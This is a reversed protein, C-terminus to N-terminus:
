VPEAEGLLPSWDPDYGEALNRRSTGDADVTMLRRVRSPESALEAEFVLAAADPSWSSRRVVLDGDANVLYLNSHGDRRSVLCVRTGDPSWSPSTNEGERQFTFQRIDSGDPRM